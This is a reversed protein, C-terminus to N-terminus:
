TKNDPIYRPVSRQERPMAARPDQDCICKGDTQYRLMPRGWGTCMQLCIQTGAEMESALPAPSGDPNYMRQERTATACSLALLGMLIANKM